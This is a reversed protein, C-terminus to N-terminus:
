AEELKTDLKAGAKKATKAQRRWDRVGVLCMSFFLVYLVSTLLLHRSAYLGIYIIDTALWVYWNELYKKTLMYQAILSSVTTLADLFPASDNVSALFMHFGFVALAGAVILIPVQIKPVHSVRLKTKRAGGKLWWYWGLFGLIIYVIQLGADAFLRSHTFLVTFIASNAIGIPWNWINEVVALWVCYGGTIFALVETFDLPVWHM